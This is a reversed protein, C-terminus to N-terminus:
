RRELFEITGDDRYRALDGTRYLRDGPAGFPDHVFREATLEPRWRYGPAVGAGGVCLEGPTGVPVLRLRDDLLRITTNAIPRGISDDDSFTSWITTETSGYVNVVRGFRQRLEAALPTPLPEGGTLATAGTIGGPLLLRWVSPTAQVFTVGQAKALDALAEPNRVAGAGAVVVRGGTILPLYFELASRDFAPSALALWRDDPGSGLLDRMALLLNALNGHTIEVGEPRGTSDSTYVVCALDDPSTLRLYGEHDDARADTLVLKPQADALILDLREAPHGPDLPLYAAGARQVALLAVLLDDSRPIRVAVLDGPGIGLRRLRGALRGAAMDLEAYTLTRDDCWVAVAQPTTRVQAAFLEPLTVPPYAVGTDNWTVLLKERDADPVVDLEGVADARRDGEGFTIEAQEPLTLHRDVRVAVVTEFYKSGGHVRDPPVSLSLKGLCSM